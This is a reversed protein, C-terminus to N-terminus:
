EIEGQSRVLSKKGTDIPLKQAKGLAADSNYLFFLTNQDRQTITPPPLSQTFMLDTNDPSHQIIGLSHGLEHTTTDVINDVTAQNMLVQATSKVLTGHLNDSAPHDFQYNTIGVLGSHDVSNDAHVIQNVFVIELDADSATTVYQFTFDSDTANKWNNLGQDVYTKITTANITNSPTNDKINNVAPRIFVKLNKNNTWHLYPVSASPAAPLYNPLFHM